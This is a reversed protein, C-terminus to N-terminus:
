SVGEGAVKTSCVLGSSTSSPAYISGSDAIESTSSSRDDLMESFASEALTRASELAELTQFCSAFSFVLHDSRNRHSLGQISQPSIVGRELAQLSEGGGAIFALQHSM